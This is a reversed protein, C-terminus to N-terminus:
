GLECSQIFDLSAQVNRAVSYETAWSRIEDRQKESPQREIAELTTTLADVDGPPVLVGHSTPELIDAFGNATTTIVPLGHATAELCANSFPDYLTPLMFADAAEYVPGLSDVGGLFLVGEDSIGRPKSGKGAVILRANQEKNLAEFAQMAFALGKREWGSGAFLIAQEDDRLGLEARKKVRLDLREESSMKEADYGNAIVVIRDEPLGYYDSIEKKVMHSNAVIRVPSQPSYLAQELELLQRHKRQRGRFWTKLSAEFHSRRELWARHVGDGARYADCTWVREFSFLFDCHQKPKAAELADAFALPELVSDSDSLRVCKSQSSDWASPPWACDSFLVAEHGLGRLGEAFRHLFREAGGTPSYGRRVLGIKM